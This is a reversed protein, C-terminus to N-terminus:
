VARVVANLYRHVFRVYLESPSGLFPRREDDGRKENYIFASNTRCFVCNARGMSLSLRSLIRMENYLVFINSALWRDAKQKTLKRWNPLISPYTQILRPAVPRKEVRYYEFATVFVTRNRLNWMILSHTGCSKIITLLKSSFFQVGFSLCGVKQSSSSGRTVRGPLCYKFQEFKSSTNKLTPLTLWLDCLM